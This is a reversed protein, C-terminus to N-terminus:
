RRDLAQKLFGGAQHPYRVGETFGDEFKSKHVAGGTILASCINGAVDDFANSRSYFPLWSMALM